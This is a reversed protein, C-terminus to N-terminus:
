LACNLELVSDGHGGLLGIKLKASPGSRSPDLGDELLFIAEAVTIDRGDVEVGTRINVIDVSRVQREDYPKPEVIEM